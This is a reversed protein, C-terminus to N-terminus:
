RCWPSHRAFHDPSAHLPPEIDLVVVRDVPTESTGEDMVCGLLFPGCGYTIEGMGGIRQSGRGARIGQDDLFPVTEKKLV